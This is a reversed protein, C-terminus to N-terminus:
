QILFSLNPRRTEEIMARLQEAHLRAQAIRTHLAEQRSPDTREPQELLKQIAMEVHALLALSSWMTKELEDEKAELLSEISFGHGVSCVLHDGGDEHVLSLVGACAPCGIITPDSDDGDSIGSM